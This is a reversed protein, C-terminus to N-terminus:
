SARGPCGRRVRWSVQGIASLLSGSASIGAPRLKPLVGYHPVSSAALELAPSAGVRRRFIRWRPHHHRGVGVFRKRGAYEAHAEFQSQGKPTGWRPRARCIEEFGSGLVWARTIPLM